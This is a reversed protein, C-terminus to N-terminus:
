KTKTVPTAVHTVPDINFAKTVVDVLAKHNAKCVTNAKSWTNIVELLEAETYQKKDLRPLNICDQLLEPPLVVTTDAVVIPPAVPPATTACGTLALALFISYRIM